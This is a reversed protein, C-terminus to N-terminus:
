RRARVRALEEAEEPVAVLPAEVPEQVGVLLTRAADGLCEAEGLAEGVAVLDDDHEGVVHEFPRDRLGDLTELALVGAGAHQEGLDAVGVCRRWRPTGSITSPRMRLM